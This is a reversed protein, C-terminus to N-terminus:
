AKAPSRRRTRVSWGTVAIALGCTVVTLGYVAPSDCIVAALGLLLCAITLVIFEEGMYPAERLHPAIVPLHAAATVVTAAVLPWRWRSHLPTWLLDSATMGDIYVM